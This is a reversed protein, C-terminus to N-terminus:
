AKTDPRDQRGHPSRTPPIHFKWDKMYQSIRKESWGRARLQAIKEEPTPRSMEAQEELAVRCARHVCYASGVDYDCPKLQMCWPPRM